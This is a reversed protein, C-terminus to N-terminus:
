TFLFIWLPKPINTPHFFPPPPTPLFIKLIQKTIFSICYTIFYKLFIM